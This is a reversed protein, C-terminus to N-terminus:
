RYEKLVENIEKKDSCITLFTEPSQGDKLSAFDEPKYKEENYSLFRKYVKEM